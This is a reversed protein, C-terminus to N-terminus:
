MITEFSKGIGLVMTNLRVKEFLDMTCKPNKKKEIFFLVTRDM